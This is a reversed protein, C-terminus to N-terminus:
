WLRPLTRSLLVMMQVALLAVTAALLTYGLFRAHPSLRRRRRLPYKEGADARAAPGVYM